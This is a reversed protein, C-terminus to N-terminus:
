LSLLKRTKGSSTKIILLKNKGSALSFTAEGVPKHFRYLLEGETSYVSIIEAESTNLYLTNDFLYMDSVAEPKEVSSLPSEIITGFDKWVDEAEYLSKTGPPVYLTCESLPLIGFSNFEIDIDRPTRCSVTVERLSYCASFAYYGIRRINEHLTVSSLFRNGLFAYTLIENVTYPIVYEKDTKGAPYVSLIENSSNEIKDFLVGDRFSHFHNEEGFQISKLSSCDLFAFGDIRTESSPIIVTTLSTCNAFAITEIKNTNSSLTATKLSSCSEFSGYSVKEMSSPFTIGTLFGCFKFATYYTHTVGEPIIYDGSKGAPFCILMTKDKNFMVGDESSYSENEKNINIAKLNNCVDFAYPGINQVTSPIDIKTLSHCESFASEGISSLGSPFEINTLASCRLFAKEGIKAVKYKVGLYTVSDPISIEGEYMGDWMTGSTVEVDNDPLFNYYIGEVEFHYAWAQMGCVVSLLVLLLKKM